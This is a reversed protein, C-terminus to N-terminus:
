RIASFPIEFRFGAFRHPSQQSIPCTPCFPLSLSAIHFGRDRNLRRFIRVIDVFPLFHVSRNSVACKVFSLAKIEDLFRRRLFGRISAARFLVGSSLFFFALVRVFRDGRFSFLPLSTLPQSLSLSLSLSLFLLLRRSVTTRGCCRIFKM